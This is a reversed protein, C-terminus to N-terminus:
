DHLPVNAPFDEDVAIRNKYDISYRRVKEVFFILQIRLRSVPPSCHMDTPSATLLNHGTNKMSPKESGAKSPALITSLSKPFM